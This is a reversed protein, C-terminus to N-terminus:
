ARNGEDVEHQRSRSPAENVKRAEAILSNVLRNQVEILRKVRPNMQDFSQETSGSTVPGSIILPTRAEDILVSDVEDVIAYWHPRQVMDRPDNVMNDRLYDFGFENNTGYTIDAAYEHQRSAPQMNSQICGTTIGFWDFIPKMWERDRGALYDNVTVLHVGRGALSNLVLPLTAVLTKGEGTAMEAIKGQHLVIGGILQVDYPVMDWTSEQGAVVYKHGVLRRCVEKVMAYVEPLLENLEDQITTFEERDIQSLRAYLDSREAHTLESDERLRTRIEKTEEILEAVSDRIHVKIEEARQRFYEDPKDSLTAFITNIEDVIPRITKIDKDHKSGVISRIFKLM